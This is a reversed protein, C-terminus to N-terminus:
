AAPVVPLNFSQIFAAPLGHLTMHLPPATSPRANRALRQEWSLRWHARQARTFTPPSHEKMHDTTETNGFAMLVTQTQLLQVWERRIQCRPWDGWLVARSALPSTSADSHSVRELPTESVSPETHRPTSSCPWFVASVRRSHITKAGNEQCQARLPCPRCSALRGAYLVRLSGNREQRREQAYLTQGAPCRLTGDPQLSFDAGAFGKTYSLRAWQPPGYSALANGSPHRPQGSVPTQTPSPDDGSSSSPESQPASGMPPPDDEPPPESVQSSALDTLRMSSAFARQGLELRLNWIWQCLIQWFEQGWSTHSVWRDADLELDEDALVTEFSGRHLYLDLVDAPTFATAPLTTFFQEYVTGEKRKGVSPRSSGAPHTAVLMRVVPGTPTLAMEACDYLARSMGSEPHITHQDPPRRLQQRVAPQELLHYDKGRVVVGPGDDALLDALPAANGYLGDLRIVVHSLPLAVATAYTAIVCRAQQLESRYQGNGPNGFTGLWQHTHAQLVTTRTRVVEGRKRGLHGPACVQEFRRHAPPLEPTSPLARQRAAQRTGDVDIIMWQNGLRDWLGGPPTGFPFRALLDELFLTRLAEVCPQDLVALYRSLTAPDPLESRGFLAMFAEAFPRVRQSFAGLTREGSVAYGILMAVFDIMEYKGMRARVFRVREEIAKSLGFQKFAHAVVAVEGFWSPTSPVSTLSAQIHFSPDTM